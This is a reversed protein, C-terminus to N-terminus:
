RAVKSFGALTNSTVNKFLQKTAIDHTFVITYSVPTCASSWVNQSALFEPLFPARNQSRKELVFSLCMLVNKSAASPSIRAFITRVGFM